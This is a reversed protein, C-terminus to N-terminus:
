RFFAKTDLADEQSHIQQFSLFSNDILQFWRFTELHAM